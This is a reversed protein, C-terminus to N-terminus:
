IEEYMKWKTTENANRIKMEKKRFEVEEMQPIFLVMNSLQPM